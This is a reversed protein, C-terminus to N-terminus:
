KFFRNQRVIFVPVLDNVPDGCWMLNHGCGLRIFPNERWHINKSPILISWGVVSISNQRKCFLAFKKALQTRPNPKKKIPTGLPAFLLPIWPEFYKLSWYVTWMGRTM